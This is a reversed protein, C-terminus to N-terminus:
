GNQYVSVKPPRVYTYVSLCHFVANHRALLRRATFFSKMDLLPFKLFEFLKRTVTEFNYGHVDFSSAWGSEGTCYELRYDVDIARDCDLQQLQSKTRNSIAVVLRETDDTQLHGNFIFLREAEATVYQTWQAEMKDNLM